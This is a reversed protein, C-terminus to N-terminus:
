VVVRSRAGTTRGGRRGTSFCRAPSCSKPPTTSPGGGSSTGDGGGFLAGRRNRGNGNSSLMAATSRLSGTTASACEPVWRAKTIAESITALPITRGKKLKGDPGKVVLGKNLRGAM